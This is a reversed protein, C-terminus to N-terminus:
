STTTTTTTTTTTVYTVTIYPSAAQNLVDALGEATFEMVMWDEGILQMAGNPSLTCKWFNWTQNPGTPNDTVFKLAYEQDANMLATVVNGTLDGLLFKQLNKAAIEDLTFNVTYEQSITPNKDKKRFGSRSSYHPLREVTPEVELSTCNGVDEYTGPATGSFVAISLIGKGVSYLEIDHPDLVM